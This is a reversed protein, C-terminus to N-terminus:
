EDTEQQLQERLRNRAASLFDDYLGLAFDPFTWELPEWRGQRFLLTVEGYVGDGIYVRHSFDKMSALVFKPLGVYGIDLNIPRPSFDPFLDTLEAEIENTRHKAECLVQPGSLPEFAVFKRWLSSGMEDVYYETLDFPIIESAVDVSGFDGVMREIAADFVEENASIMGCILKIPKPETPQAM